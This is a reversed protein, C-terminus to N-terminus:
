KGDRQALTIAKQYENGEKTDLWALTDLIKASDYPSTPKINRKTWTDTVQKSIPGKGYVMNPYYTTTEFANIAHGTAAWLTFLKAANPHRAGKRLAFFVPRYMTLDEFYSLEIPANADKAKESFYYYDNADLFALDGLLLREIGSAYTLIDAKNRGWTRVIELWENKDYKMLGLLTVTIWPPVSFKGKYKPNGIEKWTRPVEDRSILKPNYLIAGIRAGWEFAYGEVPGYSIKKRVKYAEADLEKLLPEWDSIRELAGGYVSELPYRAEGRIVDFTPAIGAKTEAIAKDRVLTDSGMSVDGNFAIKLGFREQFAAGIKKVGKEDTGALTVDLRGERQAEKVLQQVTLQANSPSPVIAISASALALGILILKTIKM